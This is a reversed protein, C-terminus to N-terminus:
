LYPIIDDLTGFKAAEFIAYGILKWRQYILPEQFESHDVIAMSVDLLALAENISVERKMQMEQGEEFGKFFYDGGKSDRFRFIVRGNM